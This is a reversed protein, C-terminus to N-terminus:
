WIKAIVSVVRLTLALAAFLTVLRFLNRLSRFARALAPEGQGLRSGVNRGYGGALWAAGACGALVLVVPACVAVLRATVFARLHSVLALMLALYGLGFLGAWVFGTVAIIRAWSGAQRLRALDHATLEVPTSTNAAAGDLPPASV